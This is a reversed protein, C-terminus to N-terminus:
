NLIVYLIFAIATLIAIVLALSGNKFTSYGRGGPGYIGNHHHEYFFDDITSKISAIVYYRFARKFNTDKWERRFYYWWEFIGNLAWVFPYLIIFLIKRM